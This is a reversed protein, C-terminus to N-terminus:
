FVTEADDIGKHFMAKVPSSIPVAVKRRYVKECFVTNERGFHTVTWSAASVM